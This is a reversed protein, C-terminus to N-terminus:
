IVIRRGDPTKLGREDPTTLKRTETLLNLMALTTDYDTDWLVWRSYEEGIYDISSFNYVPLGYNNNQKLNGTNKYMGTQLGLVLFVGEEKEGKLEVIVVLANAQDINEISGPDKEYPKFSFSHIYRDEEDSIMADFGGNMEKKVATINFAYCGPNMTIHTVLNKDVTYEFDGLNLAWAIPEYGSRPIIDCSNLIEGAIKDTCAM